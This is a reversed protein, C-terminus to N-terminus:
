ASDDPREFRTRDVSSPDIRVARALEDISLQEKRVRLDYYILVVVTAMFPTTLLSTVVSAIDAAVPDSSSATSGAGTVHIFLLTPILAVFFVFLSALLYCGATRFWMGQTLMRSRQLANVPRLDELLLAPTALLLAVLLYIGPVIFLLFGAGVLIVEVVALIMVQGSRRWVFDMASRWSSRQGLFEDSVAKLCAATALQGTAVVLLESLVNTRSGSSESVVIAYVIEVPLIFIAVLRLLLGFRTWYIQVATSVIEGVTMPQLDSQQM